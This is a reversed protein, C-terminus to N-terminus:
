GRVNWAYLARSTHEWGVINLTAPELALHAGASPDLALAVATLVRLMHGHGFCCVDGDAADARALVRQARTAVEALTEGGPVAGTFITWDQWTGGRAHIQESTLGELEGYNWETLDGDVEANPFGALAATERARALPSTLVLAFRQTALLPAIAQAQARGEDTLELNTFSTHQGSESWPTAGHRVLFLRNANM